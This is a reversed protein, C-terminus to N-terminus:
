AARGGHEGADDGDQRAGRITLNPATSAIMTGPANKRTGAASM